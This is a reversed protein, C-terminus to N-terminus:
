RFYDLKYSPHLILLFTGMAVRYLDSDDTLSYYKNLTKKGISLAHRIPETVQVDESLIGSAFAEDIVDMAPIVSAINAGKTSFFLTADNLIMVLDKIVDWEEDSLMYESVKYSARDLFSSVVTKMELFCELMNHTSNWRTAVDRRLTRGAFETDSLHERWKPLLGTSSNILKYSIKRTQ